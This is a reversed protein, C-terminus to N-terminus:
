RLISVSGKMTQKAIGNLTNVFVECVYFYAGDSCPEKTTKDRGDWNIEPDDTTFVVRGWHNIITLNIHDISSYPKKPVFFDNKGDGNPTFVNPLQYICSDYDVCFKNSFTSINGVSDKATIGYCGIVSTNVRHEYISDHDNEMSDILTLPITNSPSYYFYYKVIDSSCSDAGNKWTLINTMQQCKPIVKLQPPCPPINDVPIGCSIQSFNIIPQVFGPASYDGTSKIKYCYETGNKLGKDTFSPVPSSGISDFIDTQQNKRYITFQHNNWPVDNNWSIRLKKDTPSINIFLSPAVQSPGILFRNGPTVNYL